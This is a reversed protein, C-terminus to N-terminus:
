ECGQNNVSFVTGLEVDFNVNIETTTASFTTESDIHVPVSTIIANRAEYSTLNAPNSVVVVDECTPNVSNVSEVTGLIEINDLAIMGAWAANNGDSYTFRLAFNDNIFSSVDMDVAEACSSPWVDFWPCTSDDDFVVVHWQTGDHVEAQFFSNNDGKGGDEFPHFNYDFRLTLTDVGSVDYFNTTLVVDGTYLEHNIIDDDMLAMCSGDITLLSSANSQDDYNSFARTADDFKWEYQVLPDGGNWTFVNTSTTTWDAPLNCSDFNEVIRISCNSSPAEFVATGRCGIDSNDDAEISVSKTAGDAVLDPIEVIQPSAGWVQNYRQGDVIVDFGSSTGGGGHRIELSLTYTSPSGQNCDLTVASLIESCSGIVCEELCAFTPLNANIVNVSTTSWDETDNSISPAMIFSSGSADHGSGFSHGMEHAVLVRLQWATTTFDELILYRQPSCFADIWALGAVGCQGNNDCLNRNTWLHGIDHSGFGSPGWATFGDLLVNANTSATWPDCTSCDSVFHESIEFRLDDAFVNEYSGAVMNLVAISQNIAGTVGGHDEVYSWDIAIAVDAILCSGTSKLERDMKQKHNAAHTSACVIKKPEKVSSGQYILLFEEPLSPDFRHAPEVFYKEKGLEIYGYIFDEEITLRVHSEDHGTVTGKYTTAILNSQVFRDGTALAVKHDSSIIASRELQLTIPEGANIRIDLTQLTTGSKRNSTPAKQLEFEAFLKNLENYSPGEAQAAVKLHM